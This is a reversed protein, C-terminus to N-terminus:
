AVDGQAWERWERDIEAAIEPDPRFGRGTWSQRHRRQGELFAADEAAKASEWDILCKEAALIIAAWKEPSRDPLALWEPSGYAVPPTPCLSIRAYAWARRAEGPSM